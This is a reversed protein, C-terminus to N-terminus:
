GLFQLIPNVLKDVQVLAKEFTEKNQLFDDREIYERVIERAFTGVAVGNLEVGRMKALESTKSNTGGSVVLYVPLNQKQIIEATDIAAKTIEFDDGAGSMPNGDAQIITSYPNRSSTLKKIRAIMKEESLSTKGVCLSLMGNFINNIYDWKEQVEQENEGMAHLEICDVKKELLQPLVLKLDINKSHLKICSSECVKICKACGICNKENVSFETGAKVISKQLCAKLCKSCGICKNKDIIAKSVHPDGKIGVSLCFYFDKQNEKKISYDLGRQAADLIEPKACLDFVRCGAASYLAVLKEVESANENGAGCILKFCKKSNLLDKLM